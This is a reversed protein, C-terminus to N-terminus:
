SAERGVQAMIDSGIPGGRARRKKLDDQLVVRWTWIFESIGWRSWLVHPATRAKHAIERIATKITDPPVALLAAHDAPWCRRARRGNLTRAPVLDAPPEMWGIAGLYGLLLEDRASGLRQVLEPTLRPEVMVRTLLADGWGEMGKLVSRQEGARMRVFCEAGPFSEQFGFFFVAPPVDRAIFEQAEGSLTATLALDPLV